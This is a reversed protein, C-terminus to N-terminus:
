GQLELSGEADVLSGVQLRDKQIGADRGTWTVAGKEISAEVVVLDVGAAFAEESAEFPQSSGEVAEVM